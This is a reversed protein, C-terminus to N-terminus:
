ERLFAKNMQQTNIFPGYDVNNIKLTLYNSKPAPIFQRFVYYGVPERVWTPDMFNNSFNLTAYGQYNQGAVFADLKVKYPQKESGTPLKSYSSNGRYRVGADKFLVGNITVDCRIFTKSAYNSVLQAKWNAQKFVFSVVQLTDIDYFDKQQAPAGSMLFLVGLAALRTNM